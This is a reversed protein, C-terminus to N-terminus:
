EDSEDDHSTDDSAVDVWGDIEGNVSVYDGDETVGVVTVEDYDEPVLDFSVTESEGPELTVDFEKLYTEVTLSVREDGTNEITVNEPEDSYVTVDYYDHSTDDSAVDVWGDIEGNVSVYNGDETLGVVTVEGDDESVLEVSITESEGPELTVDFEELFTEVTLHVREDGTNEITVSEPEDSYATVDYYDNCADVTVSNDTDGDVPIETGAYYDALAHGYVRTDDHYGTDITTTEGADLSVSKLDTGGWNEDGNTGYFFEVEYENPNSVTLQGCDDSVFEVPAATDTFVDQQSRLEVPIPGNEGNVLYDSGNESWTVAILARETDSVSRYPTITKTETANVSVSSSTGGDAWWIEIDEDTPNTVNVGWGSDEVTISKQAEYDVTVSAPEDETSVPTDDDVTLEMWGYTSGYVAEASGGEAMVDIDDGEVPVFAGDDARMAQAYIQVRQRSDDREVDLTKTEGADLTVSENLTDARWGYAVEVAFENPNQLTIQEAQESTLYIPAFEEVPGSDAEVNTRQPTAALNGNLAVLADDSVRRAKAAVTGDNDVSVERTEGAAVVVHHDTGDVRYTFEVDFENPNTVTVTESSESVVHVSEVTSDARELDIGTDEAKTANEGNLPVVTGDHAHRTKAYVDLSRNEGFADTNLLLTETEGGRVYVREPGDLDLTLRVAFENPNTVTLEQASESSLQVSEVTDDSDDSDHADTSGDSGASDSSEDGTNSEDVAGANSRDDSSSSQRDDADNSPTSDSDDSSDSDPSDDSSTEPDDREDASGSNTDSETSAQSSEENANSDTDSVGGDDTEGTEVVANNEAAPDSADTDNAVQGFPLGVFAIAGALVVIAALGVALLAHQRRRTKPENAM